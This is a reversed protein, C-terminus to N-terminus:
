PASSYGIEAMLTVGLAKMVIADWAFTRLAEDRTGGGRDDASVFFWKKEIAVIINLSVWDANVLQTTCPWDCAAFLHWAFCLNAWFQFVATITWLGRVSTSRRELIHPPPVCSSARFVDAHSDILVLSTLSVNATSSSNFARLFAILVPRNSSRM